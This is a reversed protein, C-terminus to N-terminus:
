ERMQEDAGPGCTYVGPEIGTRNIYYLAGAVLGIIPAASVSAAVALNNATLGYFLSNGVSAWEVRETCPKSDIWYGMGVKLPILALGLPNAETANSNVTLGIVTSAMDALNSRDLSRGQPTQAFMGFGPNERAEAQLAYAQQFDGPQVDNAYIRAEPNDTMVCGAMTFCFLSALALAPKRKM